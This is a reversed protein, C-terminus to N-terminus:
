HSGGQLSLDSHSAFLLVIALHPFISQESPIQQQHGPFHDFSSATHLRESSVSIGFLEVLPFLEETLESVQIQYKRENMVSIVSLFYLHLEFASRDLVRTEGKGVKLKLVVHFFPQHILELPALVLYVRFYAYISYSSAYFLRSLPVTSVWDAM